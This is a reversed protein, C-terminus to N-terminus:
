RVGNVWFGALMFGLSSFALFTSSIASGLVGGGTVVGSRSQPEVVGHRSRRELNTGTPNKLHTKKLNLPHNERTSVGEISHNTMARVPEITHIHYPPFSIFISPIFYIVTVFSFERNFVIVLCFFISQFRSFVINSFLTFVV